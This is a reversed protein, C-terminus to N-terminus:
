TYSLVTVWPMPWSFGSSDINIYIVCLIGFFRIKSKGFIFLSALFIDWTILVVLESEWINKNHNKFSSLIPALQTPLFLHHAPRWYKALGWLYCPWSYPQDSSRIHTLFPYPQCYGLPWLRYPCIGNRSLSHVFGSPDRCSVEALESIWKYWEKAKKSRKKKKKKTTVQLATLTPLYKIMKVVAFEILVTIHCNVRVIKLVIPTM